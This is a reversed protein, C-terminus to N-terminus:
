LDLDAPEAENRLPRGLLYRDLNDLFLEDGRDLVGSGANSTHATLTVGPHDWLWSSADPPEARAVDLIVHALGGRELSRKLAEEDVLTGRGINILIAGPKVLGLFRDGVLDRTSANAPCALVIVDARPLVAPLDELAVVEDALENPEPRRRVATVRAGFGRLRLAVAKGINGFGVLLWHSGAIERFPTRRWERKAQAERQAALPHLRCLTQALVYEAIAVAQADSKTIRIGREMIARYAPHDLGANFTQMWRAAGNRAVAQLFAQRQGSANLDASAWFVQAPLDAVTEITAPTFTGVEVQPRRLALRPRVRELASASMVIQM